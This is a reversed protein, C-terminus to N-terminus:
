KPLATKGLFVPTDGLSAPNKYPATRGRPPPLPIKKGARGPDGWARGTQDPVPPPLYLRRDPFPIGGTTLSAVSCAPEGEVAGAGGSVRHGGPGAGPAVPRLGTAIRGRRAPTRRPGRTRAR